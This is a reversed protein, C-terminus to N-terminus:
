DIEEELGRELAELRRAIDLGEQRVLTDRYLEVGILALLPDLAIWSVVLLLGVYSRQGLDLSAQVTTLDFGGVFEFLWLLLPLALHLNLLVFAYLLLLAATLPFGVTGSAESLRWSRALARETHQGECASIAPALQYRIALGVGPLIMFLTGFAIALSRLSGTALTQLWRLPARTEDPYAARIALEQSAHRLPLLLAAALCLGQQLVQQHRHVWPMVQQDTIDLWVLLLAGLPVSTSLSCALVALPARRFRDVAQDILQLPGRPVLADGPPLAALDTSTASM